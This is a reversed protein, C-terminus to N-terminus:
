LHTELRLTSSLSITTFVSHGDRSTHRTHCANMSFGLNAVIWVANFSSPNVGVAATVGLTDVLKIRQLWQFSQFWTEKVEEYAM